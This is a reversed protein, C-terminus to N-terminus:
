ALILNSCPKARQMSVASQLLGLRAAVWYQQQDPTFCPCVQLSTLTHQPLVKAPQVPQEQATLRLCCLRRRFQCLVEPADVPLDWGTIGACTRWSHPLLALAALEEALRHLSHCGLLQVRRSLCGSAVPLSLTCCTDAAVVIWEAAKWWRLRTLLCATSLM